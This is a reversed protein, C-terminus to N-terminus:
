FVGYVEMFGESAGGKKGQCLVMRIMKRRKQQDPRLEANANKGRVM